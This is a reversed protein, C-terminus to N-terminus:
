GILSTSTSTRTSHAGWQQVGFLQCTVIYCNVGSVMHHLGGCCPASFDEHYPHGIASGWAVSLHCHLSECWEGHPAPRWLLPRQLGRLLPAGQVRPLSCLPGRGVGMCQWVRRPLRGRQSAACHCTVPQRIGAPLQCWCDAPAAATLLVRHHKNSIFPTHHNLMRSWSYSPRSSM